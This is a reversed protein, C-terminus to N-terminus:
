KFDEKDLRARCRLEKGIKLIKKANGGIKAM